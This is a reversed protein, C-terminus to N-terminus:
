KKKYITKIVDEVGCLTLYMTNGEPTNSKPSFYGKIKSSENLIKIRFMTRKGINEKINPNQYGPIPVVPYIFKVYNMCDVNIFKLIKLTKLRLSLSKQTMGKYEGSIADDIGDLAKKNAIAMGTMAASNGNLLGYNIQSTTETFQAMVTNSYVFLAFLIYKCNNNVLKKM